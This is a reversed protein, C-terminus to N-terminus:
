NQELTADVGLSLSGGADVTFGNRIVIRVGATMQADGSSSITFDPGSTITGCAEWTESGIVTDDTLQLDCAFDSRIEFSTAGVSTSSNLNSSADVAQIDVSHIDDPMGTSEFVAEWRDGSAISMALITVISGGGDRVTAEASDVGSPDDVIEASITIDSGPPTIRPTATADSISPPESDEPVAELLCVGAAYAMDADLHAIVTPHFVDVKGCGTLHCYSMLTGPGDVPCSPTGSYCYRESAYCTDVPPDYCHTHHSGFNHGLEHGVLGADGSTNDIKFVQNFSYGSSSSCLADLWAIGSASRSSGQKGSVMMALARDVGSYNDRWYNTFEILKAGDAWETSDEEYPDTAVRLITDGQLLRVNLDREYILNMAAFLSALYDTAAATDNGFKQAMLENDTDVAIVATHLTALSKTTAEKTRAVDHTADPGEEIGCTWLSASGLKTSSLEDVTELVYRGPTGAAMMEVLEFRGEQSAVVGGLDGTEPDVSVMIRIDPTELSEGLFYRRASRSVDIEGAATVAVIRAGPAYVDIRWLAVPESRDPAVPWDPAIVVGGTEVRALESTVLPNMVFGDRQRGAVSTQACANVPADHTQHAGALSLPAWAAITAVLSL